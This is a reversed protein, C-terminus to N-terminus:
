IVPVEYGLERIKRVSDRVADADDTDLAVRHNNLEISHAELGKVSDLGKDIIMACHESDVGEVPIYQTQIQSM